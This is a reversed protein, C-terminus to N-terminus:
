GHSHLHEVYKLYLQVMKGGGHFNIIPIHNILILISKSKKINVFMGMGMGHDGTGNRVEIRGKFQKQQVVVSQMKSTIFSMKEKPLFKEQEMPELYRDMLVDLM